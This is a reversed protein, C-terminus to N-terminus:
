LPGTTCLPSELVEVDTRTLMLGMSVFTLQWPIGAAPVDLLPLLKVYPHYFVDIFFDFGLM